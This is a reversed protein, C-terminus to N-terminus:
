GSLRGGHLLLSPPLCGISVADDDDDDSFTDDVGRMNVVMEPVVYTVPGKASNHVAVTRHESHPTNSHM